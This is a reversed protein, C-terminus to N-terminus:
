GIAERTEAHLHTLVRQAAERGQRICDAIGVGRYASGTLVLGPTTGLAGDIRALRELHGVEYQPMSRDWRVVVAEDPDPLPVAQSVEKAVREVLEADTLDLAEESGASGVFCRVVARDGFAEQPWKRSLWTCATISREGSHVVFGTGDPVLGATGEGYAMLVVATSAYPIAALEERAEPNAEVLLRAAEFAPVALVVADTRIDVGPATAAFGGGPSARLGAVPTDLRIREPGIAQVLARVMEELGGWVTAFMPRRPNGGAKLAARAGRMLSDHGQEWERLEPFTADLSLRSPDGAHLGALLPEVM